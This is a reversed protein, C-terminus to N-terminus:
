RIFVDQSFGRGEMESVIQKGYHKICDKGGVGSFGWGMGDVQFCWGSTVESIDCHVSGTGM